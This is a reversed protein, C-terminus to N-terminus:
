TSSPSSSLKTMITSVGYYTFDALTEMAAVSLWKCYGGGAKVEFAVPAAATGALCSKTCCYSCIM